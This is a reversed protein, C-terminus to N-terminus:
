VVPFITTRCWLLSMGVRRLKNFSMKSVWTLVGSDVSFWDCSPAAWKPLVYVVTPQLKNNMINQAFMDYLFVCRLILNRIVDKNMTYKLSNVNCVHVLFHWSSNLFFKILFKSITFHFDHFTIGWRKVFHFTFLNSLVIIIIRKIINMPNLFYASWNSM